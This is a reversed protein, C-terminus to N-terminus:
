KMVGSLREAKHAETFVASLETYESYKDEFARMLTEDKKM